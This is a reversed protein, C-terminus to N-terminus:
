ALTSANVAQGRHQISIAGTNNVNLTPTAATNAVSFKVLVRSGTALAFSDVTVTKAATSAVTSCVGYPLTLTYIDGETGGFQLASIVKNEM